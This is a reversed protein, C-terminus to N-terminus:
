IASPIGIITRAYIATKKRKQKKTKIIDEADYYSAVKKAYKYVSSAKGSCINFVGTQQGLSIKVIKDAADEVDMFDFKSFKNKLFFNKKRRAFYKIQPTLRQLKEGKGYLHFLRCWAFEKHYLTLIKLSIYFLSIKCFSYLCSAKLPSQTSLPQNSKAYELCTGVSIFRNVKTKIIATIINLSGLLCEINAQSSRYERPDVNWALHIIINIGSLHNRWWEINEKFLNKTLIPVIKKSAPLKKISKKRVITRINVKENLLRKLVQRGVFGTGGTLLINKTKLSNLNQTHM